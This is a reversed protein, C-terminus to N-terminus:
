LNYKKTLYKLKYKLYKEHRSVNRGQAKAKALSKQRESDSRFSNIVSKSASATKETKSAYKTRPKTDNIIDYFKTLDPDIDKEQNYYEDDDYTCALKNYTLNQLKDTAELSGILTLQNFSDIINQM